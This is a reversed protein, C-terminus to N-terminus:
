INGAMNSANKMVTANAYLGDLHLCIPLRPFLKHLQDALRSFAALECDQKDYFGKGENSLLESAM